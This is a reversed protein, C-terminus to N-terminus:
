LNIIAKLESFRCLEESLDDINKLIVTHFGVAAAAETNVPTDDVFVCEEAKKEYRSLFLKFIEKGPKLVRDQYSAIGGNMYKFFEHNSTMYEFAELNTNSLFYVEIGADHLKKLLRTNKESARLMENCNAMIQQIKHADEPYKKCISNIINARSATGADGMKWEDSNFCIKNFYDIEGKNYVFQAIYLDPYFSVMVNGIDLVVNKIM